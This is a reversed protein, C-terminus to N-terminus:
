REEHQVVLFVKHLTLHELGADFFERVRGSFKDRATGFMQTNSNFLDFVLLLLLDKLCFHSWGRSKEILTEFPCAQPGFSRAHATFIAGDGLPHCLFTRSSPGLTGAYRPFLPVHEHEHQM